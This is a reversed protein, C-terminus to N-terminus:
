GKEQMWLNTRRKSLDWVLLVYLVAILAPPSVLQQLLLEWAPILQM